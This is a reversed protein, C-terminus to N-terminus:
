SKAEVDARRKLSLGSEGGVLWSGATVRLVAALRQREGGSAATFHAGGDTSNLVSGNEGVLTVGGADDSTGGFLSIAEPLASKTWTQLDSSVYANGRMGFVLARNDALALVGFFSGAYIEPLAGWTMGRDCSTAMLGREGVVLLTGDGLRTMGNLHKDGLVEHTTRTWTRGADASTLFQGFGGYTFLTGDYPGAIGLLPESREPDFLVEAWTEGGDESRVIWSDHGVALATKDDVFIVSTFNSARQPTVKAERWPGEASDAILIRGQEGAALWRSGRHALGTVLLDDAHVQTPPAPPHARPAFAYLAALVVVVTLLYAPWSSIFGQQTRRAAVPSTGM